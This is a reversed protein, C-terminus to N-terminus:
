IVVSKVVEDGNELNVVRSGFRSAYQNDPNSRWLLQQYVCPRVTRM